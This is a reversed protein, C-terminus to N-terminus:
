RKLWRRRVPFLLRMPRWKRRGQERQEREWAALLAQYADRKDPALRCQALLVVYEQVTRFPNEMGLDEPGKLGLIGAGMDELDDELMEATPSHGSMFFGRKFPLDKGFVDTARIQAPLCEFVHAIRRYGVRIDEAEVPTGAYAALERVIGAEAEIDANVLFRVLDDGTVLSTSTEVKNWLGIWHGTPVDIALLIRALCGGREEDKDISDELEFSLGSEFPLNEIKDDPRLKGAIEDDGSLWGALCEWWFWIRDQPLGCNSYHRILLTDRDLAERGAFFARNRRADFFRIIFCPIGWLGFLYAAMLLLVGLLDFFLSNQFATWLTSLTHLSM